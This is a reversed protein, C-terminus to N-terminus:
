EKPTWVSVVSEKDKDYILAVIDGEKLDNPAVETYSIGRHFISKDLYDYTLHEEEESDLKKVTITRATEDISVFTGDINQRSDVYEFPDSQPAVAPSANFIKMAIAAGILGVLVVTVISIAWIRSRRSKRDPSKITIINPM